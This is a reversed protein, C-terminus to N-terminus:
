CQELLKVTSKSIDIMGGMNGKRQTCYRELKAMKTGLGGKWRSTRQYTDTISEVSTVSLTVAGPPQWKLIMM